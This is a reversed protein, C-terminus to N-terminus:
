FYATPPSEPGSPRPLAAPGRGVPAGEFGGLRDTLGPPVGAEGARLTGWAPLRRVSSWRSFPQIASPRLGGGKRGRATSRGRHRPLAPCTPSLGLGGGLRVEQRTAQWCAGPGEGAKTGPIGEM